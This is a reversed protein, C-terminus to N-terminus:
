FKVVLTTLSWSLRKDESNAHGSWHETTIQKKTYTHFSNCDLEGKIGRGEGQDVRKGDTRHNM